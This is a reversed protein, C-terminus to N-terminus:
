RGHLGGTIMMNNIVHSSDLIVHSCVGQYIQNSQALISTGWEM